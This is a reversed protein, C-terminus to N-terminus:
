NKVKWNKKIQANEGVVSYEIHMESFLVIQKKPETFRLCMLDMALNANNTNPFHNYYIDCLVPCLWEGVALVLLHSIYLNVYLCVDCVSKIYVHYYSTHEWCM